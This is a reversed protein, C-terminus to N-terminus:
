LFNRDGAQTQLWWNFEITIGSADQTVTHVFVKGYHGSVDTIMYYYYALECEESVSYGTEPAEDLNDPSRLVGGGQPTQIIATSVYAKLQFSGYTEGSSSFVFTADSNKPAFLSSTGSIVNPGPVPDLGCGNFFLLALVFFLAPIGLPSTRFFYALNRNFFLIRM